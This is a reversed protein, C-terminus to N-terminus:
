VLLAEAWVLTREVVGRAWSPDLNLDERNGAPPEYRLPAGYPTLRPFAAADAPKAIGAGELLKVL